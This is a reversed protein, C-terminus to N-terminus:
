PGSVGQLLDSFLGRMLRHGFWAWTRCARRDVPGTKGSKRHSVAQNPGSSEDVVCPLWLFRDGPLRDRSGIESHDRYASGGNRGVVARCISKGQTLLLKGHREARVM